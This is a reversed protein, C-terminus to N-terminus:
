HPSKKAKKAVVYEALSQLRRKLANEFIKINIEGNEGNDHKIQWSNTKDFCEDFATGLFIRLQFMWTTGLTVIQNRIYERRKEVLTVNIGSLFLKLASYLGNPGGGIIVAKKLAKEVIPKNAIHESYMCELM